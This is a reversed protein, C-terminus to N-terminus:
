CVVRTQRENRSVGNSELDWAGFSAMMLRVQWTCRGWSSERADAAQEMAMWGCIRYRVYRTKNNLVVASSGGGGGFCRRQEGNRQVIVNCM